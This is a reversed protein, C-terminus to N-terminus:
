GQLQLAIGLFLGGALTSLADWASVEHPPEQGRSEARNNQWQDWAEKLVGIIAASAPASLAAAERFGFIGLLVQTIFAVALGYIFHNAKDQPIVPIM